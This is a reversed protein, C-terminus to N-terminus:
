LDLWTNTQANQFKHLGVWHTFCRGVSRRQDLKGNTRVGRWIPFRWPINGTAKTPNGVTTNSAHQFRTSGCFSRSGCQRGIKSALSETLYQRWQWTVWCCNLPSSPDPHSTRGSDFTSQIYLEQLLPWDGKGWSNKKWTEALTCQFVISFVYANENKARDVGCLGASGRLISSGMHISM